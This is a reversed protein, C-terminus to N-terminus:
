FLYYLFLFFVVKGWPFFPSLSRPLYSLNLGFITVFIGSAIESTFLVFEFSGYIRDISSYLLEKKKKKKKSEGSHICEDNKAQAFLEFVIVVLKLSSHIPPMM